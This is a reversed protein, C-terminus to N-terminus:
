KMTAWKLTSWTLAVYWYHSGNTKRTWQAKSTKELFHDNNNSLAFYWKCLRQQLPALPGYTAEVNSCSSFLGLLWLQHVKSKFRGPVSCRVRSSIWLQAFESNNCGRRQRQTSQAIWWSRSTRSSCCWIYTARVLLLLTTRAHFSQRYYSTFSQVYRSAYAFLPQPAHDRNNSAAATRLKACMGSPGESRLITMHENTSGHATAHCRVRSAVPILQKLM